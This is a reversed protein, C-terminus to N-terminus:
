ATNAAASLILSIVQHPSHGFDCVEVDGYGDIVVSVLSVIIEKQNPLALFKSALEKSRLKDSVVDTHLVINVVLPQPFKLGGRTMTTIHANERLELDVSELILNKECSTCMLKKLTARACYGAVHTIAPLRSAKRDIDESTVSIKFQELTVSSVKPIPQAIIDLDPMELVKPLRLKNESEYIQRVSLHYNAGPLQRYKGFRSLVIPRFNALFSM